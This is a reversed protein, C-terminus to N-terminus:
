TESASSHRSPKRTAPCWAPKTAAKATCIRLIVLSQQSHPWSATPSVLDTPTALLHHPRVVSSSNSVVVISLLVTLLGLVAFAGRLETACGVKGPRSATM